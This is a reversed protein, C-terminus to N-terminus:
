LRGLIGSIASRQTKIECFREFDNRRSSDRERERMQRGRRDRLTTWAKYSFIERTLGGVVRDHRESPVDRARSLRRLTSSERRCDDERIQRSNAYNADASRSKVAFAFLGRPLSGIFPFHKKERVHSAGHRGRSFAGARV